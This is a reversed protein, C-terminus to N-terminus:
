CVSIFYGGYPTASGQARDEQYKLTGAVAYHDDNQLQFKILMLYYFHNRGQTPKLERM